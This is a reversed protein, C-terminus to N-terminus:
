HVGHFFRRLCDIFLAFSNCITTGFNLLTCTNAGFHLVHCPFSLFLAGSQFVFLFFPSFLDNFYLRLAIKSLGEFWGEIVFWGEILGSVLLWGYDLDM